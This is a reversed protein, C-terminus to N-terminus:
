RARWQATLADRFPPAAIDILARARSEVDRHRLDAVGFETVVLDVNPVCRRLSNWAPSSGRVAGGRATANMAVISRGGPSVRAARMFDVSGGTGSLQRGGAYEANVQGLLDVEVASNISVFNPLKGIIGVEHTYDAGRLVVDPRQALADLLARSGLVSGAIHLRADLPKRSGNIVGREILAYGADDILGSHMGLDSKEDLAGLIAAPIAGIGTQICDGDRVLERVHRGVARAAEDIECRLAVFARQTTVAFDARALPLQPSGAPAVIGENIEVVVQRARHLAAGVFDVNPGLRLVGSRDRAAQILVVDFAQGSLYAYIARMQMPLFRVRGSQMGDRLAPTAFFTEMRTDPHLATLDITNLGALPFQVFTVGAAGQPASRLCDLLGVPENSSGSIFVRM